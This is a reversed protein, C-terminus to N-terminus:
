SSRSLAMKRTPPRPVTKGAARARIYSRAEAWPIAEDTRQIRAWREDAIRHMETDLGTRERSDAPLKDSTHAM